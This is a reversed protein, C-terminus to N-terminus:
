IIVSHCYFSCNLEHVKTFYTQRLTEQDANLALRYPLSPVFGLCSVNVAASLDSSLIEWNLGTSLAATPKPVDKPRNFVYSCRLDLIIHYLSWELPRRV